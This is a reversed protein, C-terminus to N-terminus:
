PFCVLSVQVDNGADVRYQALTSRAESQLRFLRMNEQDLRLELRLSQSEQFFSAFFVIDCM